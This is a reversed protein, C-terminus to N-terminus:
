ASDRGRQDRLGRGTGIPTERVARPIRERREDRMATCCPRLRLSQRHRDTRVAAYASLLDRAPAAELPLRRVVFGGSDIPTGVLLAASLGNCRSWPQTGPALPVPHVTRVPTTGLPVAFDNHFVPKRSDRGTRRPQCTWRPPYVAFLCFLSLFWRTEHMKPPDSRTQNSCFRPDPPGLGAAALPLRAFVLSGTSSFATAAPASKSRGPVTPHSPRVRRGAVPPLTVLALAQIEVQRVAAGRPRRHGAAVPASTLHRRVGSRSM